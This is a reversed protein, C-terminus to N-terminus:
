KGGSKGGLSWVIPLGPARKRHLPRCFKVAARRVNYLQWHKTSRYIAQSLPPTTLKDRLILQRRIAREIKGVRPARAAIVVSRGSDTPPGTGQGNPRKVTQVRYNPGCVFSRSLSKLTTM